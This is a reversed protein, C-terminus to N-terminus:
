TRRPTTASDSSREALAYSAAQSWSMSGGERWAVEFQADSLRGRLEKAVSSHRSEDIPPLAMGIAKRLGDAAGLIIVEREPEDRTQLWGAHELCEAVGVVHEIKSNLELARRYRAFARDPRGEAGEVDGLYLYGYATVRRDVESREQVRLSRDVSSRALDYDGRVCYLNALSVLVLAVESPLQVAESRALSERYSDEASDLQGQALDVDGLSELAIASLWHSAAETLQLCEMALQRARPYEGQLRRVRSLNISTTVVADLPSGARRYAQLSEELLEAARALDGRLAVVEGLNNLARGLSFAAGRKRAVDLTEQILIEARRYQSKERALMGQANLVDALGREDSLERMLFQAEDYRSEATDLESQQHALVGAALLARARAPVSQAHGSDEGLMLDLWRRGEQFLGRTLWLRWLSGALQLGKEADGSEAYWRLAARLNDLEAALRGMWYGAREGSLEPYFEEALCLYHSAHAARAMPNEGSADLRDHAFERVTELMRFRLGVGNSDDLRLMSKDALAALSVMVTDPALGMERAVAEVARSDGSGAFVALCRFVAQEEADLLNYSWEITARMTQQRAPLDRPGPGLVDLRRPIQELLWDPSRHKLQSAALELALPLGELRRCISVISGANDASLEFGSRVARARELLLAVSAVRCLEDLTPLPDQEPIPLPLVDIEHEGRLRLPERSTVLVKLRPCGALLRATFAGAGIVHEFNDLVLFLELERIFALLAEEVTSHGSSRVGLATALADPVLHSGTLSALSVILAGDAF